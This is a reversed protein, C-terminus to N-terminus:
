VKRRRRAAIGAIGAGLLFLSAPEPVPDAAPPDIVAIVFDNYDYDGDIRDEFGVYRVVSDPTLLAAIADSAADPLVFVGLDAYNLSVKAHYYGDSSTNATDFLNAVSIDNLQFVLNGTLTGLDVTDGAVAATCSDTSHNCFINQLGSVLSLYSTDGADSGIFVLTVNGNVAIADPQTTVPDAQAASISAVVSLIGLANLIKKVM